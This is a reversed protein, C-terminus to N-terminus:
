IYLTVFCMIFILHIIYLSVDKVFNVDNAFNGVALFKDFEKSWYARMIKRVAHAIAELELRPSKQAM